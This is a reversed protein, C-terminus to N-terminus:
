GTIQIFCIHKQMRMLNGSFEPKFNSWNLHVVQQQQGTHDQNQQQQPQQNPPLNPALVGGEQDAM